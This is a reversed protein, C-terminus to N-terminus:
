VEIRKLDGMMFHVFVYGTLHFLGYCLILPTYGFYTVVFGPILTSFLIGGVGGFTGGIGAVSGVVKSPFVDSACAFINASWGQHALTAVSILVIALITHSTLASMAAIPMLAAFFLMTMKRAKAPDLGRSMLYSPLWGGGISGVGAMIYIYPLAWSIEKLNFGRVDYLYPPLWYLYFWWVPDTLFKAMAFGWTERHRLIALWETRERGTQAVADSQIYALEEATINPHSAPPRYLALWLILWILGLAGTAVFCARWGWLGTLYVITPPGLISSIAAGANFYGMAMSRERRPFWESVAKVAGPFNGSEGVGLTGRWFGLTLPTRALAHCAAALSWWAVSIAYGVRTGIRDIFGGALVFAVTYTVQFASNIYGYQIDTIHMEQRIVPILVSFVIRDLYNLTTAAFLLACITWRLNPITPRPSLLESSSSNNM